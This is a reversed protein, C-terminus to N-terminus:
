QGTRLLRVLGLVFALLGFSFLIARETDTVPRVPKGGFPGVASKSFRSLLMLVTGVGVMVLNEPLM